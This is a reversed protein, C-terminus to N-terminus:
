AAEPKIKRARAEEAIPATLLLLGNRFEAKVKDTDIRKPLHISRFMKGSRFECLHVTGKHGKHDHQVDAKLIIDESTVEVEIDKADVGSVAAELQFEGNRESLELAPKWVLEQEAQMWNELDRGLVGNNQFIEYARQMIRKEINKIEDRISSIKQIPVVEPM